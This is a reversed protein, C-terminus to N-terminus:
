CKKLDKKIQAILEKETKFKKFKRIFKKIELSAEKGYADGEYGILHAEANEGIVIGAPYTKNRLTVIGTYVGRKIKTKNSINITPFGIKRGYGRGKRVEGKIVYNM